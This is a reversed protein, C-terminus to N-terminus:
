RILMEAIQGITEDRGASSLGTVPAQLSSQALVSDEQAPMVSLPVSSDSSVSPVTKSLSARGPFFTEINNYLLVFINFVSIAIMLYENMSFRKSRSLAKEDSDKGTQHLSGNQRPLSASRVFVRLLIFLIVSSALWKSTRM